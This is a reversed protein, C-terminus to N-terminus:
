HHKRPVPKLLETPPMECSIKRGLLEEIAPLQYSDDEGAFSISVGSTGARGTRGIRHVYDDPDEPLTFNIVHSIGDIHIGRGAVDTAVLVTIRGERFSELTKIRKHQPVDGSLQAANVGDRVLREEIRRVEDKRNAFVMVREWKNETVLNYLLKYKDSGAVAYVHQEVTESAVNEPEIEVIAPDTTWQKALNMVDETFTASFLLTQRESKPPTQRIIQRVQPIFGMDLMRDAEDLVLVEVMDLHAEGRQNFDLLRGPTAVLIDCHRAELAKLQKDFDMGGVFTMVNLGTYKTLAAADKAIQVVLERTPAIILARPEGMYREKPPPTQQLQTIISILFAATKGTGTQARGIADKGRLTYGLVQAQIPTCYPFGLDHIAHMLEPSLKFDHFRTKGEQPEVAFDELKWTSAAPKPKRERRPKPEAPKEARAPTAAEAETNLPAAPAAPAPAQPPAPPQMVPAATETALQEVESKGFM